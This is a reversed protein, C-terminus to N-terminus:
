ITSKKNKGCDWEDEDLPCDSTGDCIKNNPICRNSKRCRFEDTKCNALLFRHLNLKTFNYSRLLYVYLM